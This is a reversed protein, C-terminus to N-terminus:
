PGLCRECRYRVTVRSLCQADGPGAVYSWGVFETSVLTASVMDCDPGAEDQADTVANWYAENRAAECTPESGTGSGLYLFFHCSALADLPVLAFGAIALVAALRALSVRFPKCRM